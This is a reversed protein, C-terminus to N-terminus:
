DLDWGAGVAGGTRVPAHCTMRTVRHVLSRRALWPAHAPVRLAVGLPPTKSPAFQWRRSKATPSRRRARHRFPFRDRRLPRRPASPCARPSAVDQSAPFPRSPSPHRTRAAGAAEPSAPPTILSIVPISGGAHGDAPPFLSRRRPRPRAAQPPSPPFASPQASPGAALASPERAPPPPPPPPSPLPRLTPLPTAPPPSPSASPQAAPWAAPVSPVPALASPPPTPALHKM